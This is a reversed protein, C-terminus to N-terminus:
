LGDFDSTAAINVNKLINLVFQPDRDKRFLINIVHHHTFKTTDVARTISM